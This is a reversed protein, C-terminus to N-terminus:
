EMPTHSREQSHLPWLMFSVLFIKYQM